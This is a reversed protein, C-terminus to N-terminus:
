IGRRALEKCATFLINRYQIYSDKVADMKASLIMTYIECLIKVKKCKNELISIFITSAEQPITDQIYTELEINMIQKQIDNSAKQLENKDRSVEKLNSKNNMYENYINRIEDSKITGSSVKYGNNRFYNFLESAFKDKNIGYKYGLSNGRIMDIDEDNIINKNRIEELERIYNMKNFTNISGIKSLDLILSSIEKELESKFSTYSTSYGLNTYIYRDEKFEIDIDISNLKNKYVSIVRDEGFLNLLAAHFNRWLTDLLKMFGNLIKRIINKPDIRKITAKLLDSFTLIKEQIIQNNDSETFSKFLIYDNRDNEKLLKLSEFFLSINIDINNEEKVPFSKKNSIKLTNASFVM